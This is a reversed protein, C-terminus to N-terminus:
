GGGETPRHLESLSHIANLDSPPYHHSQRSPSAWGWDEPAQLDGPRTSSRSMQGWIAHPGCPCPQLVDWWALCGRAVDGAAGGGGRGGRSSELAGTWRESPFGPGGWRCGGNSHAVVLWIPDFDSINLRSFQGRPQELTFTSQTRTGALTARSLQPM